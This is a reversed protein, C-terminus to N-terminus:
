RKGTKPFCPGRAKGAVLTQELCVAKLHSATSLIGAHYIHILGSPREIHLSKCHPPHIHPDVSRAPGGLVLRM